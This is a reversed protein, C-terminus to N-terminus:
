RKKEKEEMAKMHAARASRSGGLKPGKPREEVKAGGATKLPAVPVAVRRRRSSVQEMFDRRFQEAIRDDAAGDSMEPPPSPSPEYLDV